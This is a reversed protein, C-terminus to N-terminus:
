GSRNNFKTLIQGLVSLKVAGVHMCFAWPEFDFWPRWLTLPSGSHANFSSSMLLVTVLWGSSSVPAGVGPTTPLPRRGPAPAPGAGGANRTPLPPAAAHGGMAPGGM